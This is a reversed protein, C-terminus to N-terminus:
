RTRYKNKIVRLCAYMNEKEVNPICKKNNEIHLLMNLLSKTDNVSLVSEHNEYFFQIQEILSDCNPCLASAYGITRMDTFNDRRMHFRKKSM